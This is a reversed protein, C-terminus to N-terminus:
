PCLPVQMSFYRSATGACRVGTVVYETEEYQFNNALLVCTEEDLFAQLWITVDKDSLYPVDECVFWEALGQLYTFMSRTLPARRMIHYTHTEVQQYGAAELYGALKPGVWSDEYAYGQAIRELEWRKRATFVCEQLAPDVPSFRLSGFDIDKVILRGGQVLYRSMAAFTEVPDELYQSVNASFIVDAIGHDLPLQELSARKYQVQHRYGSQQCRRQATVLAELSIDVGVICGTPGIAEALLPTWLGPGCGADIVLSGPILQLDRIMQTREVVKSEHHTVLWEVTNLPLGHENGCVLSSVAM